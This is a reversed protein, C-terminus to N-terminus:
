SQLLEYLLKAIKAFDKIYRCYYGLLGIIKRVGGVTEPPNNELTSVAKTNEPDTRYSHESVPRGLFAVEKKFFKCKTLKLKVEHAKLKRLLINVHEVHESFTKINVIVDDIVIVDDLYPSCIEDM